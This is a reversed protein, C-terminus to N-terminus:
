RNNNIFKNIRRIVKQDGDGQLTATAGWYVDDEQNPNYLWGNLDNVIKDAYRIAKVSKKQKAIAVLDIVKHIDEAVVELSVHISLETLFSVNLYPSEYFEDWHAEIYQGWVLYDTNGAGVLHNLEIHLQEMKDRTSEEEHMNMGLISVYQRNPKEISNEISKEVSM